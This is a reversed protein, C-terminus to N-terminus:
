VAIARYRNGCRECQPLERVIKGKGKGRPSDDIGERGFKRDAERKVLTNVAVDKLAANQLM